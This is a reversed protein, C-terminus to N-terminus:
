CPRPPPRDEPAAAIPPVSPLNPLQPKIGFMKAVSPIVWAAAYIGFIGETLKDNLAMQVVVWSTVVFSGMLVVALRSVRGNEMLLDSLEFEPRSNDQHFRWLVAVLMALVGVLAAGLILSAPKM